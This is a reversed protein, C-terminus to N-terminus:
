LWKRIMWELIGKVQQKEESTLSHWLNNILGALAQKFEEHYAGYVRPTESALETVTVCVFVWVGKFSQYYYKVYDINNNLAIYKIM